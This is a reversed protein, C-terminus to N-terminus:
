TFALASWTEDLSCIKYDVLGIALGAERVIQQTLDTPVGSARKPWAVWLVGSGVQEALRALGDALEAKSHVFWLVMACGAALERRLEVGAPLAGLTGEFGDPAGVLGVATGAKIGLKGPLPRGAYAAFVSGPAVPNTPPHAIAGALVGAIEQWTTYVADPLLEQVRRVKEPDGGVFVLPIGRTGKRQRILVGLDRGQSPLRSLDIVIAAPPEEVLERLLLPPAPAECNVGYGAARLRAAREDAEAANWHILRIRSVM